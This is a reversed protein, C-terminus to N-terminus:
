YVAMDTNNKSLEEFQFWSFLLLLKIVVLDVVAIAAAMVIVTVVQKSVVVGVTEKVFATPSTQGGGQGTQFGQATMKNWKVIEERTISGVGMARRDQRKEREAQQGM